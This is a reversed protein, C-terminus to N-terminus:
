VHKMSYSGITTVEVDLRMSDKVCSRRWHPLPGAASAVKTQCRHETSQLACRLFIAPQYAALPLLVEEDHRQYSQGTPLKIFVHTAFCGAIKQGQRCRCAAM